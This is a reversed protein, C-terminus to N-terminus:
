EIYRALALAAVSAVTILLGMAWKVWSLSSETYSIRQGYTELVHDLKQEIRQLREETM